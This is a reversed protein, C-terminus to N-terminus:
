NNLFCILDATFKMPNKFALFHDGQETKSYVYLKSNKIVSHMWRQSQLVDSYEGTFVARRAAARRRPKELRRQDRPHVPASSMGPVAPASM